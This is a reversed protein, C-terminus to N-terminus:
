ANDAKKEDGKLYAEIKKAEAILADSNEFRIGPQLRTAFDIATHRVNYAAFFAATEEETM